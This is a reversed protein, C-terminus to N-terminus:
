PNVPQSISKTFDQFDSVDGDGSRRTLASMAKTLEAALKATVAPGEDEGRKDIVRALWLCTAVYTHGGPVTSADIAGIDDRVAMLMPGEPAARRPDHQSVYERGEHIRGGKCMRGRERDCVPCREYGALDVAPAEHEGDHWPAVVDCGRRMLGVVFRWGSVGM